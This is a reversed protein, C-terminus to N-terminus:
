AQELEARRAAVADLVGKRNEEAPIADLQEVSFGAIAAAAQKANLGELPDTVLVVTSGDPPVEIGTMSEGTGASERLAPEDTPKCVGREILREAHEDRLEVVDGKVLRLTRVGDPSTSFNQLLKVNM